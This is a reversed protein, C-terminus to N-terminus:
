KLFVSHGFHLILDVGLKETHLPLDCAGFNSGSWILLTVDLEKSITDVIEKAKPKLGDPLQLLVSCANNERIKRIIESINIDYEM